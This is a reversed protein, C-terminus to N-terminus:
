EVFMRRIRPSIRHLDFVTLYDITKFKTDIVPDGVIRAGYDMYMRMLRPLRVRELCPAPEFQDDFCAMETRPLVHLTDHLLGKKRLYKMVHWGESRDQSTLSCCGFFHRKENHLMCAALGRWLLFLVRSNRHAHAICARGLEVSSSLFSNGLTHLQFETDSYFGAGQAAMSHTQMRYTGVVEGSNHEVVMLHHCQVDYEDRDRCTSWSESLGEQLELNFVDFRLRAVNGLDQETKAFSLSYAGATDAVLPIQEPAQPYSAAIHDIPIRM